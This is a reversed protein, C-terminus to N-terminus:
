GFGRFERLPRSTGTYTLQVAPLRSRLVWFGLRGSTRQDCAGAGTSLLPSLSLRPNGGGHNRSSSAPATPITPGPAEVQGRTRARPRPQRSQPAARRCNRTPNRGQGCRTALAERTPNTPSDKVM